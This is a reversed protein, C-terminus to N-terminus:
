RNGPAVKDQLSQVTRELLRSKEEAQIMHLTLEEIKALLKSEMDGVVIGKEAVEAASPIEPLHHHESIYAAVDELPTLHYGPDFVYDSWGAPNTVVVRAGLTGNVTLLYLPNSTGIGVNGASTIRMRETETTPNAGTLFEINTPVSQSGVAGDVMFRMRAARVMEAGDYGYSVLNGVYDNTNVSTPAALTGRAKMFNFAAAFADSTYQGDTIGRAIESQSDVEFVVSPTMTGIGLNQTPLYVNNANTVFQAPLQGTFASAWILATFVPAHKVLKRGSNVIDLSSLFLSINENM